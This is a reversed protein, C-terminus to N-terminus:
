EVVKISKYVTENKDIKSNDIWQKALEDFKKQKKDGTVYQEVPYKNEVKIIHYGYESKVLGSIEGPNLKNVAEEFEKVFGGPEVGIYLGGNDKSGPDDSFEKALSAFDEGNKIRKEVEQAKKFVKQEEEKNM